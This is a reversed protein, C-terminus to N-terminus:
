EKREDLTVMTEFTSGARWVKLKLKDGPAHKQVMNQLTNETTVKEGDVELIVDDEM